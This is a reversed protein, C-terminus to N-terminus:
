VTFEKSNFHLNNYRLGALEENLRQVTTQADARFNHTIQNDMAYNYRNNAPNVKLCVV